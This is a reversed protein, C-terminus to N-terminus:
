ILINYVTYVHHDKGDRREYHKDIDMKVYYSVNLLCFIEDDTLNEKEYVVIKAISGDNTIRIPDYTPYSSDLVSVIPQTTRRTTNENVTEM